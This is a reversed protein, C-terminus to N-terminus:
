TSGEQLGPAKGQSRKQSGHSQNQKGQAPDLAPATNSWIVAAGRRSILMARSIVRCPCDVVASM